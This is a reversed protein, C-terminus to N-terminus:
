ALRRMLEALRPAWVRYSYEREVFSRARRGMESRVSADALLRIAARWDRTSHAVVGRGDAVLRENIGVPSVISPLGAAAYMLIKYGCKGQTWLDDPLPMVGVDLEALMRREAEPSWNRYEIWSGRLPPVAGMAIFKLEGKDALPALARLAILLYSSTSPSGVWGVVLRERPQHIRPQYETPEVCSPVVEVSRSYQRAAAALTPNGAVVVRARRMSRISRAAARKLWSMPLAGLPASALYIADDFDFIDQRAWGEIPVPLLSRVRHVLVLHDRALTADRTARALGRALPPLKRASAAESRILAYEVDSQSPRYDLDIGSAVLHTAMAAVRVRASAASPPYATLASVRM